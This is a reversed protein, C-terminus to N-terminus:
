HLKDIWTSNHHIQLKTPLLTPLSRPCASHALPLQARSSPPPPEEKSRCPQSQGLGSAERQPDLIKGDLTTFYGDLDEELSQGQFGLFWEMLSSGGHVLHMGLGGGSGRFQFRVEEKQTPQPSVKQHVQLVEGKWPVESVVSETEFNLRDHLENIARMLGEEEGYAFVWFMLNEEELGHLRSLTALNTVHEAKPKSNVTIEQEHRLRRSWPKSSSSGVSSGRLTPVEFPSSPLLLCGRLTPVVPPSCWLCFRWCDCCVAAHARDRCPPASLAALLLEDLVLTRPARLWVFTNKNRQNVKEATAIPPLADLTDSSGPFDSASGTGSNLLDPTRRTGM